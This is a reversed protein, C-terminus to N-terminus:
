PTGQEYDRRERPTARRASIIRVAQGREAFMVALLRQRESFGLLVFREEDVSHRPDSAIRGLPDAFVTAAEEFTVEHKSLNKAAKQPDWEFKLAV